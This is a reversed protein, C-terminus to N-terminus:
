HSDYLFTTYPITFGKGKKVIYGSIAEVETKRNDLIDKLMSSRNKETKKCINEVRTWEKSVAMGLVACAEDCIIYAMKRLYPNRMIEGNPVKFLATLPNIVANIVLKKQLLTVYDRNFEFPFDMQNLAKVIKYLLHEEGQYAALNIRGRGTHEVIHDGAKFAGHEIVGVMVPNTLKNIEELHGMGNQLFILPINENVCQILPVIASVAGQKVCIIYCDERQLEVSLLARINISGSTGELVVGNENLKMKQEERRVYITVTHETSLYSALLLGTSGGGIIGINM